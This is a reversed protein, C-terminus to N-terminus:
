QESRELNVANLLISEPHLFRPVSRKPPAARRSDPIKIRGRSKANERNEVGGKERKGIGSERNRMKEGGSDRNM